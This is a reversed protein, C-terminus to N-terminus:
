RLQRQFSAAASAGFDPGAAPARPSKFICPRPAPSSPGIMVACAFLGRWSAIASCSFITNIQLGEAIEASPEVILVQPSVTTIVLVPPLRSPLRGCSRATDAAIIVM